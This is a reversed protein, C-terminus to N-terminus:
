LLEGDKMIVEETDVTKITASPHTVFDWHMSSKSTGGYSFNSGFAVHVSGGLKEDTLIYGIAMDIAPNCGIGLEAIHTTRVEKEKKDIELCRKFTDIMQDRNVGATCEDLLLRGDEFHLTVDKIIKNTFRDITIPCYLTGEGFTEDPAIFVEGAPLNNGLDNMEIDHDDVIGDDENIRRGKIKCTFNTGKEDTIRLVDKERLHKALKSTKEKLASAPVMIGEIILRELDNHDICYFKAAEKTPWGAYTWKKGKGTEEGYLEKRVPVNAKTRAAIKEQPFKTQIKPDKFPEVVIYVDAERIAGLYHKPTIELTEKPIEDYARASYNDTTAMIIPQAGKKYCLIGIEELLEQTHAGGRIVVAEGRKLSMGTVISEACKVIREKTVM